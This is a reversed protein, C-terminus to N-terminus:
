FRLASLKWEEEQEIDMEEESPVSYQKCSVAFAFFIVTILLILCMYLLNKKM